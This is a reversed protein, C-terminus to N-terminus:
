RGGSATQWEVGPRLEVVRTPQPASTEDRTSQPGAQVRGAAYGGALAAIVAAAAVAERWRSRAPAVVLRQEAAADANVLHRMAIFDILLDRGNPEALARALSEADFPENDVFASIVESSAVSDTM